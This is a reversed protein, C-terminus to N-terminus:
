GPATLSCPTSTTRSPRCSASSRRPLSCRRSGRGSRREADDHGAARAAAHRPAARAGQLGRRGARRAARAAGPRRCGVARPRGARGAACRGARGRRPDRAVRLRQRLFGRAPHTLLRKLDALDVISRRCRRWRRASSRRRSSGRGRPPRRVPTRCPTSPSRAGAGEVTRLQAPRVAAARAADHRRRAGPARDRGGDPGARGAARRAPVAPPVPAGTREDAGTYTIVLHSQAASIADLFLQRDESRPDREGVWPDRALVDDGDHSSQAPFVGDDLGLLCVVRHPVSRMPVLTCVTLTGTRFSARTPRGALSSPSCRASTPSASCRPAATPPRPSTPSSAACSCCSGPTTTRRPPWRASPTKSRPWGSRRRPRRGPWRAPRRRAPRGARRLPRRPRHRSSDVDDLPLSTASSSDADGEMPSASCCGTSGPAGAHGARADHLQWRRATRPTSAGGSAPASPGTACDSSRRRRRLRVAAAGAPTGALDLVQRATLRPPRRARAAPSLVALLPNTQRLARDALRVRLDAAPDRLRRARRRRDRSPPARDAARVDRRRPVHRARRAARPDPRRRAPRRHGRPAGRGPPHPRPLRPGPRQPRRRRAAAAPRAGRDAALDAQLRGLLTDARPGSDHHCGDAAPRPLPRGAAAARPRRPVPHRAAPQRPPRPDRRRPPTSRRAHSRRHGVAGTVPPAAVPARRPARRACRLVQLRAPSLRSPGFVRSRARAPRSLEPQDGCGRRLRRRAARGPEAYRATRATPAVARGALRPGRGAPERRRRRRPRGGLRAADGAAVPRVRRLADPWGARWARASTGQGRRPGSTSRRAVPVVARGPDVRRHRRAAAVGGAGAGLAAGGDAHEASSAALAEDVLTSPWPFAVNACVGDGTPTAWCTRSGSPSGASSARPPCRWSRPRSRTRPRWPWCTLWRM